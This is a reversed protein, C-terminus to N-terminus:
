DDKQGKIIEEIEERTTSTNWLGNREILILAHELGLVYAKTMFISQQDCLDKINM